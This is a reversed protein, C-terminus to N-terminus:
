NKIELFCNVYSVLCNIMMLFLKKRCLLPAPTTSDVPTSMKRLKKQCLLPVPTSLDMPTSMKMRMHKTINQQQHRLLLSSSTSDMSKSMQKAM